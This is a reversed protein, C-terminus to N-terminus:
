VLLAQQDIALLIVVDDDVHKAQRKSLVDDDHETLEMLVAARADDSMMTSSPRDTAVAAAIAAPQSNLLNIIEIADSATLFGDNNVDFFYARTAVDPLSSPPAPLLGTVPNRYRPGNIENIILLVDRPIVVGDADVDLPNAANHWSASDTSVVGFNRDTLTAGASLSVDYAGNVPLSNGKGEELEMRLTYDGDAIPSMTYNGNEDTTATPEAAIGEIRLNDLRGFGRGTEPIAYAIVYDINVLGTMVTLNSTEGLATPDTGVIGVEDGNANYAILIAREDPASSIFDISVSSVSNEFDARFRNATGWSTSGPRGFVLSGTASLTDVVAFVHQRPINILDAASITVGNTVNDLVQGASFDDPEITATPRDLVGNGNTDIYATAGTITSDIGPEYTGVEGVDNFVLGSVRNTQLGFDIGSVVDDALVIQDSTGVPFTKAWGDPVVVDLAYSGAEVDLSYDGDPGTVTWTESGADDVRLNDLRGTVGTSQTYAIAYAISAPATSVTMTDSEGNRLGDTTDTGLLVGDADYVELIGEETANPRTGIFDISISAVADVLDIRLRRQSHFFSVDQVDNGYGFVKGGTTAFRDTKARVAVFEAIPQNDTGAVSLVVNENKLTLREDTAYDDPEVFTGNRDLEGNGNADDYVHIGAIGVEGDNAMGDGNLDDIVQGALTALVRRDELVEM